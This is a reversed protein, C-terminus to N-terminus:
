YLLSCNQVLPNWCLVLCTYPILCLTDVLWVCVGRSYYAHWPFRIFSEIQTKSFAIYVCVCCTIANKKGFLFAFGGGFFFLGCFLLSLSQVSGETLTLLLKATHVLATLGRSDCPHKREGGLMLQEFSSYSVAPWNPYPPSLPCALVFLSFYRILVEWPGNWTYWSLMLKCSISFCSSILRVWINQPHSIFLTCWCKFIGSTNPQM